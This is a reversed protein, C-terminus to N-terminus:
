NLRVTTRVSRNEQTYNGDIISGGLILRKLQAFRGIKTIFILTWYDEADLPVSLDYFLLVIVLAVFAVLWALSSLM